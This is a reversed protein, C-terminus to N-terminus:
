VQENVLREIEGFSVTHTVQDKTVHVKRQADDIQIRVGHIYRKFLRYGIGGLFQKVQTEVQTM